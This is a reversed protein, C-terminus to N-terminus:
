LLKSVSVLHLNHGIYKFLTNSECVVHTVSSNNSFIDVCTAGWSEAAEQVQLFSLMECVWHIGYYLVVTFLM